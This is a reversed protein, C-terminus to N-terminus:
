SSNALLFFSCIEKVLFAYVSLKAVKFMVDSFPVQLGTYLVGLDQPHQDAWPRGKRGRSRGM